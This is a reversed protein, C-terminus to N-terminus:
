LRLVVEATLTELDMRVIGEMGYSVVCFAYKTWKVPPSNAWLYDFSARNQGILSWTKLDYKLIQDNGMIVLYHDTVVSTLSGCIIPLEVPVISFRESDPDFVNVKNTWAAVVYIKGSFLSLSPCISWTDLTGRLLSWQNRVFDYKEGTYWHSKGIPTSGGILYVFGKFKIIGASCREQKMRAMPRVDGTDILVKYAVLGLGGGCCLM